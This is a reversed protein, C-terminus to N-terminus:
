FATTAASSLLNLLIETANKSGIEGLIDVVQYLKEKSVTTNIVETLEPIILEGMAVLDKKTSQYIYENQNGLANILLAINDSNFM